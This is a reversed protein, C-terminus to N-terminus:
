GGWCIVSLQSNPPVNCLCYTQAACSHTPLRCRVMRDAQGREAIIIAAIESEVGVTVAHLRVMQMRHKAIRIM